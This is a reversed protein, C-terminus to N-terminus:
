HSKRPLMDALEEFTDHVAIYSTRLDSDSGKEADTGYKKLSDAFKTLGQKFADVHETKTGKPVGLKVIADGLKILEKSKSRITALDNSPLAEHQLHRLVDHFADYEKVGSGHQTTPVAAFVAATFLTVLALISFTRYPRM